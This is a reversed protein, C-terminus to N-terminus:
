EAVCDGLTSHKFQPYFGRESERVNRPHFLRREFRVTEKFLWLELCSILSAPFCSSSLSLPPFFTENRTQFFSRPLFSIASVLPINTYMTPSLKKILPLQM